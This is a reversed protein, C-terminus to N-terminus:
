APDPEGDPVEDRQKEADDEPPIRCCREAFFGAGALLVGSLATAVMPIWTEPGAPVTRTLVLIVLGIGFGTFLTGSFQGARAGALLRVAHFPNVPTDSKKEIIRVLRIGLFALIAGILVLTAPLSVPPIFPPRGSGSLLLQTGHGVGIGIAALLVFIWPNIKARPNM